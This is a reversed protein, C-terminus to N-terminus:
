LLIALKMLKEIWGAAGRQCRATARRSAVCAARRDRPRLGDIFSPEACIEGLKKGMRVKAQNIQHVVILDWDGIQDDTEVVAELVTAYARPHILQEDFRGVSPLSNSRLQQIEGLTGRALVACLKKVEFHIVSISRDLKVAAATEYIM